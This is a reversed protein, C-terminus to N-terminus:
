RAAPGGKDLGSALICSDRVKYCDTHYGGTLISSPRYAYMHVAAVGSSPPPTPTSVPNEGSLVLAISV